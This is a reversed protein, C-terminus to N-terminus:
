KMEMGNSINEEDSESEDYEFCSREIEHQMPILERLLEERYEMDANKNIYIGFTDLFPTGDAHTITIDGYKGHTCIFNAVEKINHLRTRGALSHGILVPYKEEASM